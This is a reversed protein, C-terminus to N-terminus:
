DKRHKKEDLKRAVQRMFESVPFEGKSRLFIGGRRRWRHNVWRLEEAQNLFKPRIKNELIIDSVLDSARDLVFVYNGTTWVAENSAWEACLLVTISRYPLGYPAVNHDLCRYTSAEDLVYHSSYRPSTAGHHYNATALAAGADSTDGTVRLVIATPKQSSGKHAAEVYPITRLNTQM